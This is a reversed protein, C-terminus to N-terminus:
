DLNMSYGQGRVSHFIRKKYIPEIKDRVYKIYVRLRNDNGLSGWVYSKISDKSVPKGLNKYLLEFLLYEQRTLRVTQAGIDVRNENPYFIPHGATAATLAEHQPIHREILGTLESISFPRRLDAGEEFSFTICPLDFRTGVTDADAVVLSAGSGDTSTVADFGRRNLELVLMRSLVADASIVNIRM